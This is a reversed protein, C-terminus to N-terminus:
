TFLQSVPFSESAPLTQPGSSFPIVSSSIAPHCRVRHVHTQTFEPLQHHFPLGPTSHNMLNCLTLCSQAVSSFQVSSINLYTGEIDIKQLIKIMHSHQTKEFSKQADISITMNNKVKLKNVYHIVNVSKCYVSFGQMWPIFEVQDLHILDKIHQQIRKVLIKKLIKADISAVSIPM